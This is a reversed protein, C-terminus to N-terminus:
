LLSVYDLVQGSDMLDCYKMWLDLLAAKHSFEIRDFVCDWVVVTDFGRATAEVASSRVCGSTTGGLIFLTDIKLRTMFAHLPTGFFASAHSKDIM